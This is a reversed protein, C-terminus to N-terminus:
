AKLIKDAIVRKEKALKLRSSDNNVWVTESCMEIIRDFIRKKDITDANKLESPTLNTTVILPRKMLYIDNVINYATQTANEIGIDDLVFCQFDNLNISQRHEKMADTRDKVLGSLNAFLVPIGKKILENAICGAFFSKGKGVDGYFLIGSNINRMEEFHEVYNKCLTTIEEQRHDDNSFLLDRYAATTIGKKILDKTKQERDYAKILEKEREEEERQCRCQCSVILPKPYYPVKHVAQKPENCVGCYLLGGKTYDGDKKIAQGRRAIESVINEYM